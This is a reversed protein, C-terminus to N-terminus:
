NCSQVAFRNQRMIYAFFLIIFVCSREDFIIFEPNELVFFFIGRYYCFVLEKDVSGWRFCSEWYFSGILKVNDTFDGLNLFTDIVEIIECIHCIIIFKSNGSYMMNQHAITLSFSILAISPSKLFHHNNRIYLPISFKRHCRWLLM